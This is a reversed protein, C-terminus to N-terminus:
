RQHGNALAATAAHRGWENPVLGFRTKFLRNFNAQTAFGCAWSLAGLHANPDREIRARAHQLRIERLAGMVTGGEDTFAACLRTRSCGIGLAIANLELDVRHAHAEMFRLAAIRRGAALTDAATSDVQDPHGAQHLALLALVRAGALLGTRAPEDLTLAQSSLLNLQSALAPALPCDELVVTLGNPAAGYAVLADARPLVLFAERSSDSWEYRAPRTLDYLGLSGESICWSEGTRGRIRVQGAQILSVVVMDASGARRRPDARTAYASSSMTGFTCGHDRLTLLEADLPAGPPPPDLDVWRHARERWAEYRLAPEVDRSSLLELTCASPLVSPM